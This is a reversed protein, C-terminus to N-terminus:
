RPAAGQALEVLGQLAAGLVILALRMRSM